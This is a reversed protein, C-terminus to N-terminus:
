YCDVIDVLQINPCTQDRGDIFNRTRVFQHFENDVEAIVPPLFKGSDPLFAGVRSFNLSQLREKDDV